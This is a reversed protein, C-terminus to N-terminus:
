HLEKFGLHISKESLRHRTLWRMRSFANWRVDQDLSDLLLEQGIILGSFRAASKANGRETAPFADVLV